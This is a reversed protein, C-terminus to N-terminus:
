KLWRKLRHKTQANTSTRGEQIAKEGRAIGELLRVRGQLAEFSAVDILYAAPVGHQIILAPSKDKVVESLIKTTNRKLTTALHTEM